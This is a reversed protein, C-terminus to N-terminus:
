TRVVYKDTCQIIIIGKVDNQLNAIYSGDQYIWENKLCFCINRSDRASLNILPKLSAEELRILRKMNNEELFSAPIRYWVTTIFEQNISRRLCVYYYKNETM